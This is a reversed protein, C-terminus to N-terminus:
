KALMALRKSIIQPWNREAPTLKHQAALRNVIALARNLEQRALTPKAIVSIRFLGLVLDAQWGANTPDAKTLREIIALGAGYSAMADGLNNQAVQVDGVKQYALSLGRQWKANGPNAKAAREAANRSAQFAKLAGPLDGRSKLANGVGAQLVSVSRQRIGDRPEAKALREAVALGARYSQLAGPLAGHAMQVDGIRDYSLALDRQWDANAPDAKALRETIALSSRYSKLAESSNGLAIQTNGIQDYAVELDRQRQANGPDAKALRDVVAREAQYAELAAPLKGEVSQADGIKGYAVALSRQWGANSPATKALRQMIALTGRYSTLAASIAGQAMQVDGVKEYGVAVGRQWRNEGPNATALRQMIALFARDSKLAASMRGQAMQLEGIKEDTIALDSQWKPDAKALRVAIAHDAQYSKMATALQGRVLLVTGRQEYAIALNHQWVKNAPNSAVLTRMLDVAHSAADDAGKSDGQSLLTKSMAVLASAQSASLDPRGGGSKALQDQLHRARDLIDKILSISVGSVNRFRQALNFVLGNATETAAALAEEAKTKENMAYVGFGAAAAALILAVVLAAGIVRSLRRADKLRRAQEEERERQRQEAEARAVDERAQCAELYGQAPAIEQAWDPGRVALAQADVLRSGWHALFDPKLTAEAKAWDAAALLVGDLLLLSDRDQALLEALTTWRRLLAEHAVELTAADVAEAADSGGRGARVVLLRREILARALPQLDPPVERQRAVRRQVEKTERDIRALRPIFLRRLAERRQERDRVFGAEKFGAEAEAEIAEALGGTKNLHDLGITSVGANERMLRQLVFALLPLADAEGEMEGQLHEIVAADFVPADPGVKARLIEAPERIVRAIEGQPVPGLSLPLPNIGDFAKANQMLGFSDSRITVLVLAEDADMASRALELLRKCEADADSGFFEEGQDLCLVPLPFPPEEMLMRRAAAQRLDRLLGVFQEPSTLRERLDSRSVRLGFKAHVEELSALLGESGEIAGGRGARVARMAVWQGDDRALRPWLGARLFSSKGAGSAGLIVLLRPPAAAALGRLADIGRVIDASRGFFVAADEPELAELGRYPARWGFPGNPDAQLDFTEPGFGAKQLGLKLRALGAKSLHVPSQEQTVPHVTVFREAPEGMLKVIQWQTVLGGPLRDLAIDEIVLAFLKKNYRNALHYEDHCWRSALWDESVIFLVAECRTAADEFAKAWRQGAAIGREPDLDLFIDEPGSWGEGVLWDRVAIAWDDNRSSHSIFLQSM